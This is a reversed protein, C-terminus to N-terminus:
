TGMVGEYNIWRSLMCITRVSNESSKVDNVLPKSNYGLKPRVPRNAQVYGHGAWEGGADCAVVSAAATLVAWATGTSLVGWKPSSLYDMFSMGVGRRIKLHLMDVCALLGLLGPTRVSVELGEAQAM